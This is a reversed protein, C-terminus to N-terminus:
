QVPFFYKLISSKATHTEVINGCILWTLSNLRLALTLAL